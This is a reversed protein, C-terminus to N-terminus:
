DVDWHSDAAGGAKAPPPVVREPHLHEFNDAFNQRIQAFNTAQRFAPLAYLDRAYRWLAPFGSPRRLSEILLRPYAIDLRVLSLWLRIDPEVLDAGFLFRESELRHELEVLREFLVDIVRAHEAPDAAHGAHHVAGNVDVHLSANLADMEPRLREPYLDVPTSAWTDFQTSLDLSIAGSENSILRGTVRDWLAPVSARGPWGPVTAEYADRLRSFGNVPDPGSVGGFTWGREDASDDVYSVSVVDELGKLGRVVVARNSWSCGWAVYVHYRGPEARYGSSGDATIRGRLQEVERAPAEM